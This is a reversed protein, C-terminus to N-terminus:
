VTIKGDKQAREMISALPSVDTVQGGNNDFYVKYGALCDKFKDCKEELFSFDPQNNKIDIPVFAVAKLLGGNLIKGDGNVAGGDGASTVGFPMTFLDGSCGYVHETVGRIHMHMDVLGASVIMGRADFFVDCRADIDKQLKSVKGEEILVDADFFKEGDWVRGNKILIKKM